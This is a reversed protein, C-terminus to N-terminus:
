KIQRRDRILLIYVLNNPFLRDFDRIHVNLGGQERSYAISQVKPLAREIDFYCATKVGYLTYRWTDYSMTCHEASITVAYNLALKNCSHLSPCNAVTVHECHPLHTSLLSLQLISTAVSCQKSFHLRWDLSSSAPGSLNVVSQLCKDLPLNVRQWPFQGVAWGCVVFFSFSLFASAPHFGCSSVSCWSSCSRM